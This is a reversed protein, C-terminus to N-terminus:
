DDDFVFDLFDDYDTDTANWEVLPTSWEINQRSCRLTCNSFHQGQHRCSAICYPDFNFGYQNLQSMNWRCSYIRRAMTTNHWCYGHSFELPPCYLCKDQAQASALAHQHTDKTNEGWIQETSVGGTEGISLKLSPCCDAFVAWADADEFWMGIEHQQVFPLTGRPPLDPGYERSTFLLGLLIIGVTFAGTRLVAEACREAQESSEEQQNRRQRVM